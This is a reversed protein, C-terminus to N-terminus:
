MNRMRLYRKVDPLVQAVAAGLAAVAAGGILIKKM